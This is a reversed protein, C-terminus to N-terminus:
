LLGHPKLGFTKLRPFHLPCKAECTTATEVKEKASKMSKNISLFVLCSGFIESLVQKNGPTDPRNDVFLYGYPKDTEQYYASIFRQRNKDFMREAIISIEKRDSPSRFFAM